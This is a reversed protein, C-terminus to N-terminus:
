TRRFLGREVLTGTGAAERRSRPQRCPPDAHAGGRLNGPDGVPHRHRRPAGASGRGGGAGSQRHHLFVRGFRRVAPGRDLPQGACSPAGRQQGAAAIGQGRCHRGRHDQAHRWKGAHRLHAALSRTGSVPHRAPRKAPQTRLGVRRDTRRGPQRPACLRGHDPAASGDARRDDGHRLGALSQVGGRRRRQPLRRAKGAHVVGRDQTRRHGLLEGHLPHRSLQAHGCPRRRARHRRLEGAPRSRDPGRAPLRPQLRLRARIGSLQRQAFPRLQGAPHRSRCLRHLRQVEPDARRGQYLPRRDQPRRAGPQAGGLNAGANARRHGCEHPRGVRQGRSAPPHM